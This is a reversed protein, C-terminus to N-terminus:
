LANKVALCIKNDNSYKKHHFEKHFIYCVTVSPFSSISQWSLKKKYTRSYCSPFKNQLLLNLLTQSATQISFQYLLSRCPQSLSPNFFGKSILYAYQQENNSSLIEMIEEIYIKEKVTCVVYTWLVHYPVSSIMFVVTLGVVIKATNRRSNLQPNQTGESISRCREKLHLATM